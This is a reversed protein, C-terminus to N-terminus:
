DPIPFRECLERVAARGEDALGPDAPRQILAGILSGILEMEPERMGRTTLAPTGFRMAREIPGEQYPWLERNAIIGIRELLTEGRAGDVGRAATDAIVLHNDTGGTLLKLDSQQLALGLARANKLVQRQYTAFSPQMAEGLAVAKAAIVHMLPGGQEGPFCAQDLAEAFRAKALLLGGRPGRMTKQFTCTVFDAHPVPDPHCRAAVLGALHAMDVHLYAGVERAIRAFAEYDFARPYSSAGAIILKPKCRKALTAIADLDITHTDPSVGYPVIRFTTGPASTPYGHSYHGGQETAMSLITDGHKLVAHYVIQNAQTGSHPQVNASEAGFLERARRIAEGEIRDVEACGAYLRAGIFGEAYKDTLRSGLAQLVAKSAHNESAVLDLTNQQRRIEAAILEDMVPDRSASM